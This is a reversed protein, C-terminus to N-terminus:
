EKPNRVTITYPEPTDRERFKRDFVSLYLSDEGSKTCDITKVSRTGDRCGHM